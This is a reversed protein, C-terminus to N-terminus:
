ALFTQKKCSVLSYCITFLNVKEKMQKFTIREQDDYFVFMEKNPYKIAMEYLAQGSTIGIFPSKRPVHLYSRRSRVQSAM